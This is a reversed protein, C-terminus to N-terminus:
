AANGFARLADPESSQLLEFVLVYEYGSIAAQVQPRSDLMAMLVTAHAEWLATANADSQAVLDKIAALRVHAGSREEPTLMGSAVIPQSSQLGPTAVLSAIMADLLKQTQTLVANRVEPLARINLLHELDGASSALVQM